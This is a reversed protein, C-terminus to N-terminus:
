IDRRMRIQTLGPYDGENVELCLLLNPRYEGQFELQKRNLMQPAVFAKIKAEYGNIHNELVTKGKATMPFYVHFGECQAHNM